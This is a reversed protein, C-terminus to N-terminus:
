RQQTRLKAAIFASHPVHILEAVRRIVHEERYDLVGDAHAVLWLYEILRRKQEATFRRNIESTFQHLGVAEQATADALALLEAAEAAPLEFKEGLAKLLTDREVTSFEGDARLVEVFLAAAALHLRHEPAADKEPRDLQQLFSKIAALM